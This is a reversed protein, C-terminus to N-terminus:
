NALDCRARLGAFTVARYMAGTDLFQFGLRQALMRAVSSKGAGAPGAIPVIMLVHLRLSNPFATATIIHVHIREPQKPAVFFPVASAMGHHRTLQFTPELSFLCRIPRATPWSPKM